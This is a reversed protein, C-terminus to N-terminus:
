KHGVQVLQIPRHGRNIIITTAIKIILQRRSHINLHHRSLTEMNLKGVMDVTEMAMVQAAAMTMDMMPERIKWDKMAVLVQTDTKQQHIELAVRVMAMTEATKVPIVLQNVPTVATAPTATLTATQHDMDLRQDLMKDMPRVTAKTVMLLAMKNDMDKLLQHHNNNDM